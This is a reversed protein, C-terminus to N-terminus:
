EESSPPINRTFRFLNDTDYRDKLEVLREWNEPSYSARVREPTVGDLDLLDIYIAGEPLFADGPGRLGSIGPGRIMERESRV